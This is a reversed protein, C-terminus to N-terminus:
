YKINRLKFCFILVPLITIIQKKRYTLIFTPKTGINSKCMVGNTLLFNGASKFIHLEILIFATHNKNNECCVVVDNKIVM